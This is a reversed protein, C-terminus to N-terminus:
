GSVLLLCIVAWHAGKLEYMPLVYWNLPVAM